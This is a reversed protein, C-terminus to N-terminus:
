RETWSLCLRIHTTQQIAFWFVLSFLIMHPSARIRSFFSTTSSSRCSSVQENTLELCSCFGWCLFLRHKKFLFKAIALLTNTFVPSPFRLLVLRGWGQLAQRTHQHLGDLEVCISELRCCAHVCIQRNGRRTNKDFQMESFTVICLDLFVFSSTEAASLTYRVRRSWHFCSGCEQRNKWSSWASRWLLWPLRSPHILRPCRHRMRLRALLKDSRKSGRSQVACLSTTM